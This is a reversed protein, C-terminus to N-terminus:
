QFQCVADDLLSAKNVEDDKGRCSSRILLYSVDFGGICAIAVALSLM